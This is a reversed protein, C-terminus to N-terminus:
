REPLISWNVPFRPIPEFNAGVAEAATRVRDRMEPLTSMQQGAEARESLSVQTAIGDPTTAAPSAILGRLRRIAPVRCIGVVADPPLDPHFSSTM